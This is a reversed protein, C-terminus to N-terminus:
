YYPRKGPVAAAPNPFLPTKGKAVDRLLSQPTTNRVRANFDLLNEFIQAYDEAPATRLGTLPGAGRWLIEQLENDAMGLSHALGRLHREVTGYEGKSDFGGQQAFFEHAPLGVTTGRAAHTDLVFGPAKGGTAKAVDYQHIKYSEPPLGRRLADLAQLHAPLLPHAAVRPYRGAFEKEFANAVRERLEGFKAQRDKGVALSAASELEEPTIINNNLAWYLLSGNAIEMVPPTRIAGASTAQRFLEANGGFQRIADDVAAYSPYFHIPMRRGRELGALTPLTNVPSDLGVLAGAASKPGFPQREPLAERNPGSYPEILRRNFLVSRENNAVPPVSASTLLSVAHAARQAAREPTVALAQQAPRMVDPQGGQLYAPAPFSSPSPAIAEVADDYVPDVRREWDLGQLAFRQGGPLETYPAETTPGVGTAPIVKGSALDHLGQETVVSNQQYKRGLEEARRASLGPVFFSDETLLKGTRDDTYRGKARVFPLGEAILDKELWSNRAANEAATLQKGLINGATLVAFREGAQPIREAIKAINRAGAGGMPLVSTAGVLGALFPHGEQRLERAQQLGLAEGTIPLLGAANLALSKVAERRTSDLMDRRRQVVDSAFATDGKNLAEQLLGARARNSVAAAEVAADRPLGVPQVPGVEVSPLQRAREPNNVLANFLAASADLTGPLPRRVVTPKRTATRDAAVPPASRSGKRPREEDLFRELWSAV